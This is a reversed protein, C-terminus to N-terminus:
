IIRFERDLDNLRRHYIVRGAISITSCIMSFLLVTAARILRQM